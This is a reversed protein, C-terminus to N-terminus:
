CPLFENPVALAGAGRRNVILKQELEVMTYTAPDFQLISDSYVSTEDDYGGVLVFSESSVQASAYREMAPLVAAFVPLRLNYNQCQFQKRQMRQGPRWTMSNLNFIESMGYGALVIETGESDSTVKGCSIYADYDDGLHQTMSDLQIWEHYPYNLIFANGSKGNAFFVHTDNLSVQLFVANFLCECQIAVYSEFVQCHHYMDEPLTIGSFFFYGETGEYAWYEVLKSTADNSGAVLWLPM